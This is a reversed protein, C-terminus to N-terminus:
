ENSEVEGSEKIATPATLWVYCNTNDIKSTKVTYGLAKAYKRVNSLSIDIKATLNPDASLQKFMELCEAKRQDNYRRRILTPNSILEFSM